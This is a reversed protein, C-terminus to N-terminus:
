RLIGRHSSVKHKHLHSLQIYEKGCHECPIKQHKLMLKTLSISNVYNQFIFTFKKGRESTFIIILNYTIYLVKLSGETGERIGEEHVLELRAGDM